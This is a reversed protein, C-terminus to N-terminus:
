IPKDKFHLRYGFYTIVLHGVFYFAIVVLYDALPLRIFLLSFLISGIVYDLQDFGIWAEGSKIGQRRKFFSEVADGLLAGFGLAAGIIFHEPSSSVQDGLMPYLLWATLGAAVVGSVLGRWSKNPGLLRKGGFSLGLDMPTKWNKLGPIKNAVPPTTNAVGAPLFFLIAFLIHNM